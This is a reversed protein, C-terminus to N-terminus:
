LEAFISLPLISFSGPGQRSPLAAGWAPNVQLWNGNKRKLRYKIDYPQNGKIFGWLPAKAKEMDDPYLRGLWKMWDGLRYEEKRPTARM